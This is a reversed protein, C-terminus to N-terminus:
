SSPPIYGRGVDIGEGQVSPFYRSCRIEIVEEEEGLLGYGAIDMYPSEGM